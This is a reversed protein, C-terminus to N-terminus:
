SINEATWPLLKEGSRERLSLPVMMILFIVVSMVSVAMSLNYHNILWSGTILSISSGIAKSGWMLSNAKGQQEIPVIDIVLSDTAIDQFIIFIHLCVVTGTLLAINEPNPVFSIAILSCLIGFQGFLLTDEEEWPYIFMDEMM